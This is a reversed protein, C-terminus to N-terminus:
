AASFRYVMAVARLKTRWLSWLSTFNLYLSGIKRANKRRAAFRASCFPRCIRTPRSRLSLGPLGRNSAPVPTTSVPLRRPSTARRMAATAQDLDRDKRRALRAALNMAPIEAPNRARNKAPNRVLSVTLNMGAKKGATGSDEAAHDAIASAAGAAAAMMATTKRAKRQCRAEPRRM